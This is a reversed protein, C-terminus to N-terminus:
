WWKKYDWMDETISFSFGGLEISYVDYLDEGKKFFKYDIDKDWLRLDSRMSIQGMNLVMCWKGIYDNLDEPIFIIPAFIDMSVDFSKHM